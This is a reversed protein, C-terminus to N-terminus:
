LGLTRLGFIALVGMMLHAHVKEGGKVFLFDGGHNDKLDAFFREAATRNRYRLKRDPSLEPPAQGRKEPKPPVIPVAGTERVAEELTKGAYGKDMLTYFTARVRRSALRLLPIAGLSDHVSASTTLFALPIGGDGVSAHAKYGRWHQMYGKPGRKKGHDCVRPLDRMAAEHAQDLAGSNALEHFARSFTPESPVSYPFGVVRRLRVDLVLREVLDKTTPVNLIAKALFARALAKRSLPPRGTPSVPKTVSEEIRLLELVM